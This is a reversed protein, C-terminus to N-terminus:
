HKVIFKRTDKITGNSLQVFYLGDSLNGTNIVVKDTQSTTPIEVTQGLSNFFTVKYDQIGALEINLESNTPVPYITMNLKVNDATALPGSTVSLTQNLSNYGTTSEWVNENALRIAFEPKAALSPMDDPLSLYMKYNGTTINAPLALSETITIENPGLWTRPDTNMLIPYVQNTTLNKLVIYAHRENYPTSFGTNKIKLTVSMNTGVAAANPLIASNLQFRYGLRKQIDPFCGQDQFGDIVEPFYDLNLFDWHFKDMELLGTSCDSRPSNLKCTEGGMALFKTEQALYPYETAANEYTGYDTASALFCDNHHAVRSVNTETFAQSATLASSTFLHMKMDPYRIQVQRNAPLAALIANLIDRRHNYNSATLDSENYGWGGFEAQSTYYWEGWVGIFGAQMVAIVDANAQLVPTFQAIHSLMLAKTADRHDSDEDSGYSFRLICKIGANRMKNFDNQMSTLFAASIPSSVFADIRVERYIMTINNNLRYNTLTTQDLSSNSSTHKYFGREPNSIVATSATYNVTTTQASGYVCLLFGLLTIFNKM